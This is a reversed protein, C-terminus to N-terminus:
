KPQDRNSVPLQELLELYEDTIKAIKNVEERHFTFADGIGPAILKGDDGAKGRERLATHQPPEAYFRNIVSGLVLEQSPLTRIGAALPPFDFRRADHKLENPVITQLLEAIEYGSAVKSLQHLAVRGVVLAPNGREERVEPHDIIWALMAEGIERRRRAPALYLALNRYFQKLLQFANDPQASKLGKLNLDFYHHWSSDAVIRGVGLGDGDYVGLVATSRCLRKDCGKAVVVPRPKKSQNPEKFPPWHKGLSRPTVVMGEHRHDPFVDILKFKGEADKGYFLPHPLDNQGLVLLLKQPVEDSQASNQLEDFQSTTVLTNFSSDDNNTPPGEWDRMQGARPVGKGLARGLCLFTDVPDTSQGDPLPEAHDGAILLGGEAMWKRLEERERPDLENEPGGYDLTFVPMNKMYRGFLWMVDYRSLLESDIKKAPPARAEYRNVVKLKFEVFDSQKTELIEKVFSVSFDADPDESIFFTDTYVLINITVM